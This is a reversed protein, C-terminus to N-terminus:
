LILSGSMLILTVGSLNKILRQDLKNIQTSFLLFLSFYVLNQVVIILVASAQMGLSKNSFQSLLSFLFLVLQTNTLNAILLELFPNPKKVTLQSNQINLDKKKRNFVQIELIKTGLYLLFLGGSKELIFIIFKSEAFLSFLTLCIISYFATVLSIAVVGSLAKTKLHSNKLLLIGNVGPILMALLHGFFLNILESMYFLGLHIPTPYLKTYIYKSHFIILIVCRVRLQLGALPL